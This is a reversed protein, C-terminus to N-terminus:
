LTNLLSFHLCHLYSSPSPHSSASTPSVTPSLGECAALHLTKMLSGHRRDRTGFIHHRNMDPRQSGSVPQGLARRLITRMALTTLTTQSIRFSFFLIERFMWLCTLIVVIIYNNHIKSRENQAVSIRLKYGFALTGNLARPRFPSDCETILSQFVCVM